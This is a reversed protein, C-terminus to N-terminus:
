CFSILISLLILHSLLMLFADFYAVDSSPPRYFVSICFNHKCFEICLPLFELPTHLLTPSEFPLVTCPLSNRVFVIIGGGHRSRDRRFITFGPISLEINDIDSSLWSEVICIVDYSNSVCLVRLEDIKPLISRANLYIINFCANGKRLTM